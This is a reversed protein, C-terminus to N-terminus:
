SPSRRLRPTCRRPAAPLPSAAVPPTPLLAEALRRCRRGPPSGARRLSAGSSGGLDTMRAPRGRGGDPAVPVRRGDCAVHGRRPRLGAEPGCGGALAGAGAGAVRPELAAPRRELAAVRRGLDTLGRAVQGAGAADAGGAGGMM